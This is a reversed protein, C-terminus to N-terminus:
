EGQQQNESTTSSEGSPESSVSPDPTSSEAGSSVSESSAPQSSASSSLASSSSQPKSSGTSSPRSPLVPLSSLQSHNTSSSSESSGSSSQDSSAGQSSSSQQQSLVQDIISQDTGEAFWTYLGDEFTPKQGGKKEYWCAPYLPKSNQTALTTNVKESEGERLLRAMVVFRLEVGRVDYTCTSLTLIKDGEAVDVSTNILSRRRVQEAWMLFDDQSAFSPVCYDFYYGNDGSPEANTVFAAFVKYTGNGYITDFTINPNQKYFDISRYKKIEALMSGDRMHHGYIVVNQSRNSPNVNNRYDAFLAGYVSEEGFSNHTLYYDNDTTQYVPNDTQTGPVTLWGVIDQNSEYLKKFKTLIGDEGVTDDDDDYLDRVAEIERDYHIRDNISGGVYACSVVLLIACLMVVVKRVIELTSDGSWPIFSKFFRVLWPKKESPQENASADEQWLEELQGDGAEIAAVVEHLDLVEEPQPEIAAQEPLEPATELTMAAPVEAAGDAQQEFLGDLMDDTIVIDNEQEPAAPPQLPEHTKKVADPNFTMRESVVEEAGEMVEPLAFLYKCIMDLAHSSALQRVYDREDATRGSCLERVWIHKGDTLAIYVLGSPKGEIPEGAVGTIGVGLDTGNLKRVGLAMRKAVEASVTGHARIVSEPVGLLKVKVAAAYAAVGGTFVESSGGVDTIRKSLLGATCSEATAVTMGRRRLGGVAVQELSSGDTSYVYDKMKATLFKVVPDCLKEAASKTAASATVRLRVEGNAAYIGVTPNSGDFADGLMDAAQAEGVGFMRITHSVIVAESLETLYPLVKDEFMPTLERPPGPLMIIHQGGKSIALGPATGYDNDFVVAGEPVTAQRLNHPTMERGSREYYDRIRALTHEDEHLEIGLAECVTQKTIDDDTAGLGGTLIIIESRGIAQQLAKAIRTPNDGVTTHYYTNIGCAALQESLYAADTNVTEGLLLETGVTILEANM